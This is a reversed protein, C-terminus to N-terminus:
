GALAFLASLITFVLYIVAIVIIVVAMIVAALQLGSRRKTPVANQSYERVLNVNRENAKFIFDFIDGFIPVAGIVSEIVVNLLMRGVVWGSVGSRVSELVIYGSIMATIADGVGPILGIIGDLGITRSTGPIRISSDLLWALKDLRKLKDQKIHDNDMSDKM